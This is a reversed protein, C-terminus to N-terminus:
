KFLIKWDNLRPNGMRDLLRSNLDYSKIKSEKNNRYIISKLIPKLSRLSEFYSLVVLSDYLKLISPYTSSISSGKNKPNLGFKKITIFLLMIKSSTRFRNILSFHACGNRLENIIDLTNLFLERENSKFGFENLVSIMVDDKLYHCLRKLAGFDITQISVWLPVAVNNDYSYISVGSPPTYTPSRYFSAKIFDPYKKILKDLYCSNPNLKKDFFIFKDQKCCIDNNQYQFLFYSTDGQINRYKKIDTYCMTDNLNYCNLKCFYHAVVTKLHTEFRNIITFVAMSFKVDFEYLRIFDDVSEENYFKVNKNNLLLTEFGNFLQFYNVNHLLKKVDINNPNKLNRQVILKNELSSISEFKKIAM